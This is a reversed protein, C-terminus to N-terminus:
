TMSTKTERRLSMPDARQKKAADRVACQSGTSTTVSRAGAKAFTTSSSTGAANWLVSCYWFLRHSHSWPWSLARSRGIRPSFVSPGRADDDSPMGEDLVQATAVVFQPDVGRRYEAQRGCEVFEPERDSHNRRRGREREDRSGLVCCHGIVVVSLEDPFQDAVRSYQVASRAVM